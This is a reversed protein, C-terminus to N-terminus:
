AAGPAPRAARSAPFHLALWVTPQTPDTWEVRHRRGAPILVHDGARMVLVEPGDQFRLGASGCLVVVWENAAQELWQDVPTAQGTSVIRELRFEATELLVDFLEASAPPGIAKFLNPVRPTGTAESV